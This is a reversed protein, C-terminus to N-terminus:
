RAPPTLPPEEALLAQVAAAAVQRAFLRHRAEASLTRDQTYIWTRLERIVADLRAPTIEEYVVRGEPGVTVRPRGPFEILQKPM